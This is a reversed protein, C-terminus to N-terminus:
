VMQMDSTFEPKFYLFQNTFFEILHILRIEFDPSVRDVRKGSVCM